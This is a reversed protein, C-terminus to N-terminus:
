PLERNEIQVQICTDALQIMDNNQLIKSKIPKRNLHIISIQKTFFIIGSHDLKHDIPDNQKLPDLYFGCPGLTPEYIPFDVSDTGVYRPGYGVCWTIGKQRGQTITLKLRKYFPLVKKPKIQSVHQQKSLNDFTVLLLSKWPSLNELSKRLSFAIEGIAFCMNDKLEIREHVDNDLLIGRSSLSNLFIKDGNKEVQAHQSSITPNNVYIDVEKRRGIIAKDKLYFYMGKQSGSDIFLFLAM